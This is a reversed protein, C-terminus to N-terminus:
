GPAVGLAEFTAVAAQEAEVRAALAARRNALASRRADVLDLLGTLGNRYLVDAQAVARSAADAAREAAQLRQLAQRRAVLGGDVERLAQVLTARYGAVAQAVRARAADVQAEGGGGDLLSQELLAGLTAAVLDLGSGGFVLSAPLVLRPRLSAEAVGVEAAAVVLAQEAAQLDPRRRLLDVPRGVALPGQLAPLPAAHLPAPEPWAPSPQGAAALLALWAAGARGRAAARDAETGALEADAREQDLVPSLGAEVRVRAIRLSDRQLALAEDLLAEDAVAARWELWASAALAATANRAARALHGQQLLGATAAREAAALGGGLDADWALALSAEPAVRREGEDRRLRLTTGAQAVLQPSRGARALRLLAAAEDVRARAQGPAPAEALAREVWSALGPDGFQQWWPQPSPATDDGGAFRQAPTVDQAPLPPPTAERPTGCGALLAALLLSAAARM